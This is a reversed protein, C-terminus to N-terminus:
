RQQAFNDLGADEFFRETIWYVHANSRRLLKGSAWLDWGPTLWQTELRLVDQSAWDRAKLEHTFYRRLIQDIKGIRTLEYFSNM